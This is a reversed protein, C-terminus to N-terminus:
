RGEAAAPTADAVVALDDGQCKVAAPPLASAEYSGGRRPPSLQEAGGRRHLPPEFSPAQSGAFEKRTPIAAGTGLTAQPLGVALPKSPSTFSPASSCQMVKRRGPPGQPSYDRRRPGACSPAPSGPPGVLTALSCPVICASRPTPGAAADPSPVRPPASASPTVAVDGVNGAGAPPSAGKQSGNAGHGPPVPPPVVRVMHAPPQQAHGHGGGSTSSRHSGNCQQGLHVLNISLSADPMASQARGGVNQLQQQPPQSPVAVVLPVSLSPTASSPMAVLVTPAIAAAPTPQGNCPVMAFPAALLPTGPTVHGGFYASLPAAMPQPAGPTAQGNCHATPLPANQPPPAGPTSQGSCRAASVQANPPPVGPTPQGCCRAASLPTSPPPAGPTTHGSPPAVSLSGTPQPTKPTSQGDSALSTQPGSHAASSGGALNQASRSWPSGSMPLGPVRPPRRVASPTVSALAMHSQVHGAIQRELAAAMEGGGVTSRSPPRSAATGGGGRPGFEGSGATAIAACVAIACFDGSGCRGGRQAPLTSRMVPSPPPACLVSAEVKPPRAALGNGVCGKEMLARRLAGQM